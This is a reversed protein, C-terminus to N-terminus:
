PPLVGNSHWSEQANALQPSPVHLPRLPPGIGEESGAVFGDPAGHYGQEDALMPTVVVGDFPPIGPHRPDAEVM